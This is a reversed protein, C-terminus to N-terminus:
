RRHNVESRVPSAVPTWRHGVQRPVVSTEVDLGTKGPKIVQVVARDQAITTLRASLPDGQRAAKADNAPAQARANQWDSTSRITKGPPPAGIFPSRSAAIAAASREANERTIEITRVPTSSEGHAMPGAALAAIAVTVRMASILVTMAEEEATKSLLRDEYDNTGAVEKPRRRFM